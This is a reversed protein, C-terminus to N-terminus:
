KEREQMIQQLAKQGIPSNLPVLQNSNCARCLKKGSIVLYILGPIVGLCFLLLLLLISKSSKPNDVNGCTVCYMQAM